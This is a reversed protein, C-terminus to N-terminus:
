MYRAKVRTCWCLVWIPLLHLLCCGACSCAGLVSALQASGIVEAQLIARAWAGDGGPRQAYTQLNILSQVFTVVPVFLVVLALFALWGLVGRVTREWGRLTVNKWLIDCPDPAPSTRWLGSHVSM